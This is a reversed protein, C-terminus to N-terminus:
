CTGCHGCPTTADTALTSLRREVLMRLRERLVDLTIHELVDNMFAQMLMARAEDRPIGRAQMYFLARADLMGTAAGHSCKVDDCYIELQPETHIRAHPSAVINRNNQYAETHHAGPSVKILGEFAARSQNDAVYKVLQDSTCRPAHHMVRSNIDALQSGSTTALGYLCYDAGPGNLEVTINDRTLGTSSVVPAVTLSASADVRAFTNADRRTADNSEELEYLRLSAGPALDIETVESLTSASTQAHSHDCTLITCEADQELVILLRRVVLMPVSAALINVLQIPRECRTQRAVHVLIGDQAMLTNLAVEPAHIDAITGYYRELVDPMRIAAESMTCVTVGQPLRELGRTVDLTDNTTVCMVTSINPVACKFERAVDTHFAVRNINVGLDPAFMSEVDTYQYGEHGRRPLDHHELVGAAEPRRANLTAPSHANITARETRYLDLYQSVASM